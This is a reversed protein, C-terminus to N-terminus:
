RQHVILNMLVPQEKQLSVDRLDCMSYVKLKIKHLNHKVRRDLEDWVPEIPNLCPSQVHDDRSKFGVMKNDEDVATRILSPAINKIM